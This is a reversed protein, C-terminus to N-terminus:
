SPMSPFACSNLINTSRVVDFVSQVTPRESNRGEIELSAREPLASRVARQVLASPTGSPRRRPSPSLKEGRVGWKRRIRVCMNEGSDAGLMACLPAGVQYTM